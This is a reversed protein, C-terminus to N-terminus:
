RVAGDRQAHSARGNRAAECRAAAIL